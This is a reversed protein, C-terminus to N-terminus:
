GPDIEAGHFHSVQRPNTVWYTNNKMWRSLRRTQKAPLM